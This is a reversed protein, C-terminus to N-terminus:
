ETSKTGAGYIIGYHKKEDTTQRGFDDVKEPPVGTVCKRGAWDGCHKALMCPILGSTISEM